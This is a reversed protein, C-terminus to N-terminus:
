HLINKGFIPINLQLLAAIFFFFANGIIALNLTPDTRRVEAMRTWVESVFNFQFKRHPAQAPVRSVGFSTALGFLSVFILIIGATAPHPRFSSALLTGAVTGAIIALFSVLYKLANDSFAGQFQTIILSWFGRLPRTPM